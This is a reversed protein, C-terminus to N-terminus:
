VKLNTQGKEITYLYTNVESVPWLKRKILFYPIELNFYIPLLFPPLVLLMLCYNKLIDVYVCSWMQEM